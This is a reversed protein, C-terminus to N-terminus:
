FYNGFYYVFSVCGVITYYKHVIEMNFRLFNLHSCEKIDIVLCFRIKFGKLFRWPNVEDDGVAWPAKLVSANKFYIERIKLSVSVTSFYCKGSFFGFHKFSRSIICLSRTFKLLSHTTAACNWYCPIQCKEFFFNFITPM